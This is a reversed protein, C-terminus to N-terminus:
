CHLYFLYFGIETRVTFFGGFVNVGRWVSVNGTGVFCKWIWNWDESKWWSRIDSGSKQPKQWVRIQNTVLHPSLDVHESQNTITEITVALERYLSIHKHKCHKHFSDGADASQFLWLQLQLIESLRHSKGWLCSILGRRFRRMESRQRNWQM